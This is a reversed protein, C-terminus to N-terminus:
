PYASNSCGPTTLDEIKVGLPLHDGPLTTLCKIPDRPPHADHPFDDKTLGKMVTLFHFFFDRDQDDKHDAPLNSLMLTSESLVSFQVQGDGDLQEVLFTPNLFPGDVTTSLNIFATVAGGEPLDPTAGVVPSRPYVLECATREPILDLALTPKPDGCQDLLRPICRATQSFDGGYHVGNLSKIRVGELSWRVIKDDAYDIPFWPRAPPAGVIAARDIELHARHGILDRLEPIGAYRIDPQSANVLIVRHDDADIGPFIHTCIGFCRISVSGNNDM